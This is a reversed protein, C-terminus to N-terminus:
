EYNERKTLDSIVYEQKKYVKWELPVNNIVFYFIDLKNDFEKYYEKVFGLYKSKIKYKLVYKM